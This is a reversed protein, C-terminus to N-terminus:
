AAKDATMAPLREGDFARQDPGFGREYIAHLEHILEDRRDLLTARDVSDDAAETLLARYRECIIWLRHAFSRHALVRGEVGFVGYLAFGLLAAVSTVVATVQYFRANLLLNGIAAAAGAALLMAMVIRSALAGTALRDAARAHVTYNRAVHESDLRIHDLVTLSFM